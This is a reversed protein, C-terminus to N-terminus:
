SILDGGDRAWGLLGCDSVPVLEKTDRPHPWRADWYKRYTDVRWLDDMFSHAYSVDFAVWEMAEDGRMPGFPVKPEGRKMSEYSVHGYQVGAASHLAALYKDAFAQKIHGGKMQVVVTTHDQDRITAAIAKAGSDLADLRRQVISLLEAETMQDWARMEERFELTTGDWVNYM